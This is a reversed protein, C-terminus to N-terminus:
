YVALPLRAPATRRAPTAMAAPAAALARGRRPPFPRPPQHPIWFAVCGGRRGPVASTHARATLWGRREAAPLAAASRLARRIERGQGQARARRPGPLAKGWRACRPPPHATAARDWGWGWGQGRHGGSGAWEVAARQGGGRRRQGAAAGGGGGEGWSARRRRRGRRARRPCPSATRECRPPSPLPGAAPPVPPPYPVARGATDRPQSESSYGGGGGGSPNTSNRPSARGEKGPPRGRMEQRPKQSAETRGKGRLTCLVSGCRGTLRHLPPALGEGAGGSGKWGWWATERRRRGKKKHEAGTPDWEMPPNTHVTMQVTMWGPRDSVRKPNPPQGLTAKVAATRTPAGTVGQPKASPRSQPGPSSGPGHHTTLGTKCGLGYPHSRVRRRPWTPSQPAAVRMARAAPESWIHPIWTRTKLLRDQLHLLQHLLHQLIDAKQGLAVETLQSLLVNFISRCSQEIVSYSPPWFIGQGWVHNIERKLSGM